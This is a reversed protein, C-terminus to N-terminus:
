GMQRAMGFATACGLILWLIDLLSCVAAFSSGFTGDTGTEREAMGVNGGGGGAFQHGGNWAPHALKCSRMLERRTQRDLTLLHRNVQIYVKREVQVGATDFETDWEDAIQWRLEAAAYSKLENDFANDNVMQNLVAVFEDLNQITDPHLGVIALVAADKEDDSLIAFKQGAMRRLERDRREQEEFGVQEYYAIILEPDLNEVEARAHDFLNQDAIEGDEVMLNLMAYYNYDHEFWQPYKERTRQLLENKEQRSLTEQRALVRDTLSDWVAEDYEYIMYNDQFYSFCEREALQQEALPFVGEEVMEDQLAYTVQQDDSSWDGFEDIFNLMGFGAMLVLAMALKSFLFSFFAIGAAALCFLPSPNRAILGAVIGIMAGSAWAVFGLQYGSVIWLLVWVVTAILGVGAAAFLGLATQGASAASKRSDSANPLKQPAAYAPSPNQLYAPTGYNAAQQNQVAPPAWYSAPQGTAQPAPHAPPLPAYGPHGTHQASPPQTKPQQFAPQQTQPQQFGPQQFGQQPMAPQNTAPMGQSPPLALPDPIPDPM